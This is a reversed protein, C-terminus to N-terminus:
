VRPGGRAQTKKSGRDRQWVSQIMRESLCVQYRSWLREVMQSAPLRPDKAKESILYGLVYDNLKLPRPRGSPGPLLGAIGGQLFARYVNYFTTRSFGFRASASAVDCGEVHCSRLLEYKVQVSDNPDFFDRDEVFRPDQVRDPTPHLCRARQLLDRDAM